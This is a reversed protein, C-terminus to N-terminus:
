DQEPMPLRLIEDDHVHFPPALGQLRAITLLQGIAGGSAAHLREIEDPDRTDFVLRCLTAFTDDLGMPPLDIRRVETSEAVAKALAPTGILIFTVPHGIGRYRPWDLLEAIFSSRKNASVLLLHDAGDVFFLSTRRLPDRERYGISSWEHQYAVQDADRTRPTMTGLGVPVADEARKLAAILEAEPLFEAPRCVHLCLGFRRVREDEPMAEFRRFRAWATDRLAFTEPSPITRMQAALREEAERVADCASSRAAQVAFRRALATKGVGPPGCLVWVPQWGPDPSRALDLVSFLAGMARETQPTGFWLTGEAVDPRVFEDTKKM